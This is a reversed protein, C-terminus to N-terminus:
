KFFYQSGGFLDTGVLGDEEEISQDPADFTSPSSSRNKRRLHAINTIDKLVNSESTTRHCPKMAKFSRKHLDKSLSTLCSNSVPTDNVQDKIKEVGLIYRRKNLPTQPSLKSIQQYPPITYSPVIRNEINEFLRYYISSLPIPHNSMPNHFSQSEELNPM